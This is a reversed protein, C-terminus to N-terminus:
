SQRARVFLVNEFIIPNRRGDGSNRDPPVFNHTERRTLPMYAAPAVPPVSGRWIRRGQRPQTCIFTSTRARSSHGRIIRHKRELPVGEFSEIPEVSALSLM